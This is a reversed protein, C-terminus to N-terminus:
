TPAGARDAPAPASPPCPAGPQTVGAPLIPPALRSFAEDEAVYPLFGLAAAREAMRATFRAYDPDAQRSLYDITLVRLGHSAFGHRLADLTARQSDDGLASEIAVADIAGLYDAFAPHPATPATDGTAADWGIFAGGNVIVVFDRNALVARERAYHGLRVVLAMMAAAFDANRQPAPAQIPVALAPDSWTYYHLVDDLFVGDYGRALFADIRRELIAAWEPTWFAALREGSPSTGAYWAPSDADPPGPDTAPGFQAVWYDRNPELEAVNLYAYAPRDGGRRIRTVEDATFLREREAPAAAGALSAEIILACHPAAALGAATYRDGWYQVGFGPRPAHALRGPARLEPTPPPAPTPDALRPESRSSGSVRAALALLALPVAIIASRRTLM